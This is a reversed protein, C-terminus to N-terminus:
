RKKNSQSVLTAALTKTTKASRPNNLARSAKTEMKKGTQSNNATQRLASAALSRQLVSSSPNPLTKAALSAVKRSTQKKNPM